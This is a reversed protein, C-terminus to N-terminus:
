QTGRPFETSLRRWAICAEVCAVWVPKCTRSGPNKVISAKSTLEESLLKKANQKIGRIKKKEADGCADGGGHVITFLPEAMPM